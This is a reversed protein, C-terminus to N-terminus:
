VGGSHQPGNKRTVTFVGGRIEQRVLWMAEEGANALVGEAQLIAEDVEASTGTVEFIHMPEEVFGMYFDTPGKVEPHAWGGEGLVASYGIRKERLRDKMVSYTKPPCAFRVIHIM